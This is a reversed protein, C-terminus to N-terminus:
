RPEELQELIQVSRRELFRLVDNQAGRTEWRGAGSLPDSRSLDSILDRQAVAHEVLSESEVHEVLEEIRWSLADVCATSALCGEYLQGHKAPVDPDYPDLPDLAETFAQDEGWPIMTWTTTSPQHYLLFNNSRTIYSDINGVFVMAASASVSDRGRAFSGSAMYDKMIQVGDHDKFHIGAVEDFAVVDWVGVLGIQRRALNYFLNAVTTQGGSILISNPSVEKYIHSKGTGRPGLECVNFNNEVFPIMRALLHWRVRPDLTTPEMGSSRLLVDLWQEASFHSRGARLEEMNTNPMQIPKIQQITFPSGKQGEEYFYELTVLSWMGGVLLKEYQRVTSSLVEVGKIGLSLLQAEYVDRKENLQVSVKDIVKYTGRERVLSKIKEAEDPRVFNEALIRKETELGEAVVVEDQSACYNGLLYELVFVPVNAGEKVLKTLDKRVIKGAFHEGLLADLEGTVITEPSSTM